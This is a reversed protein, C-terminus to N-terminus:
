PSFAKQRTISIEYFRICVCLLFFFSSIEDWLGINEGWAMTASAYKKELNENGSVDSMSHSDLLRM